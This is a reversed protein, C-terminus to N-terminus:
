TYLIDYLYWSGVNGYCLNVAALFFLLQGGYVQRQQQFWSLPEPEDIRCGHKELESDPECCLPLSHVSCCGASALIALMSLRSM